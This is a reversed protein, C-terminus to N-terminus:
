ESLAILREIVVVCQNIIENRAAAYRASEAASRAASEAAYRASRAAYRASRAAYRAYRASEAASRAASEAASEAAYMAYMASEAASEAASRASGADKVEPISQLTQKVEDFGARGMADAAITRVAWDALIFVRQSTLADNKTGALRSVFPMLVDTRNADDAWLRSDNLSILFARIVPCCCEMEDTAEGMSEGKSLRYCAVAASMVCAEGNDYNGIGSVLKFKPLELLGCTTM